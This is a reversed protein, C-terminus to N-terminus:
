LTQLTEKLIDVERSSIGYGYENGEVLIATGGSDNIFNCTDSRDDILIVKNLNVNNNEAILINNNWKNLPM